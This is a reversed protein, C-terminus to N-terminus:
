PAARRLSGNPQRHYVTRDLMTVVGAKSEVPLFCVRTRDIYRGDDIRVPDKQKYAIRRSDKPVDPPSTSKPLYIAPPRPEDM